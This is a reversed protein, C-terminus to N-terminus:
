GAPPPVFVYTSFSRQPLNEALYAWPVFLHLTILQKLSFAREPDSRSQLNKSGLARYCFHDGPLLWGGRGRLVNAM